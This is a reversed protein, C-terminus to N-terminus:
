QPQILRDLILGAFSDRGASTFLWGLHTLCDACIVIQWRYGSFWSFEDTAPGVTGCGIVSRFCAIEFVLGHPNAFTHIHAGQVSIRDDPRTVPQGCQRCLIYAEENQEADSEAETEPHGPAVPAKKRPRTLVGAPQFVLASRTDHRVGLMHHETELGTSRGVQVIETRGGEDPLERVPSPM